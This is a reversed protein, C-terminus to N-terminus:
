HEKSQEPLEIDPQIEAKAAPPNPAVNEDDSFPQLEPIERAEAEARAEEEAKAKANMKWLLWDQGRKKVKAGHRVGRSKRKRAKRKKPQLSLYEFPMAGQLPVGPDAQEQPGVYVDAEEDDSSSNQDQAILEQGDQIEMNIDNEGDNNSTNQDNQAFLEQADTIDIENSGVSIDTDENSTPNNDQEM